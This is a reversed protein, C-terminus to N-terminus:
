KIRRYWGVKIREIYGALVLHHIRAVLYHPSFGWVARITATTFDSFRPLKNCLNTDSDAMIKARKNAWTRVAKRRGQDTFGKGM